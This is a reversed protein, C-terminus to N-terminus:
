GEFLHWELNEIFDAAIKELDQMRAYEARQEKSADTWWASGGDKLDPWYVKSKAVIMSSELGNPFRAYDIKTNTIPIFEDPYDIVLDAPTLSEKDLLRVGWIMEKYSKCLAAVSGKTRVPWGDGILGETFVQVTGNGTNWQRGPYQEWQSEETLFYRLFEYAIEPNDCGAGVAGYFTVDATVSGDMSRIPYMALNIGEAEAIVANVVATNLNGVFMCNVSNMWTFEGSRRNIKRNSIYDRLKSFSSVRNGGYYGIVYEQYSRLLGVLKEQTLLLEQNDYDFIQGLANIESNEAARFVASSSALGNGHQALTDWFGIIDKEFLDTSLGTKAFADLDVYAALMNFRLPLVYRADGVVGADMVEKLLADKGLEEDADYYESIDEFVGNRMALEVDPFPVQFSSQEDLMDWEASPLLLVDPGKGSMLETRLREQSLSTELVVDVNKHEQEFVYAWMEIQTKMRKFAYAHSFPAYVRLTVPEGPEETEKDVTEANEQTAEKGALASSEGDTVTCGSLVMLMALFLALFRINQKKM